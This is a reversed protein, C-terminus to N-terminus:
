FKIIVYFSTKITYTYIDKFIHSFINKLVSFTYIYIDFSTNIQTSLHMYSLMIISRNRIIIQHIYSSPVTWAMLHFRRTSPRQSQAELFFRSVQIKTVTVKSYHLDSRFSSQGLLDDVLDFTLFNHEGILHIYVFFLINEVEVITAVGVM